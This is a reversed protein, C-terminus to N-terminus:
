AVCANMEMWTRIFNEGADLSVYDDGQMGQESYSVDSSDYGLQALYIKLESRFLKDTYILGHQEVDWTATDFYVRLEGFEKDDSIYPVKFGTVTVARKVNSWHGNGDTHLVINSM